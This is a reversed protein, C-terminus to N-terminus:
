VRRVGLQRATALLESVIRAGIGKGRHGPDVALTRIEALDEWMVHLAGCGVVTEGQTAVWFEQVDEYLTVTAKNLLRGDMSYMDILRRIGPVDATRARRITVEGDNGARVRDSTVDRVERRGVLRRGTGPDRRRVPQCRPWRGARPRATRAPVQGPRAYRRRFGRRDGARPRGGGPSGPLRRPGAPVPAGAGPGRGAPREDPAHHWRVGAPQLRRGGEPLDPLVLDSVPHRRGAPARDGGCRATRVPLPVSGGAYGPPYP